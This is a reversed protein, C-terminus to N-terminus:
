MKSNPRKKNEWHIYEKKTVNTVHRNNRSM